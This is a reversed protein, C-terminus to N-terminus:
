NFNLLRRVDMLLVGLRNQGPFSSFLSPPNSKNLGSGWFPNKTWEVLFCDGTAMLKAALDRNEFKSLLIERMIKIKVREWQESTSVKKGEHLADMPALTLYRDPNASSNHFMEKAFQYANESSPFTLGRYVVPCLHFNSLFRYRVEMNAAFEIREVRKVSEQGCLYPRSVDRYIQDVDIKALFCRGTETKRLCTIYSDFYSRGWFAACRISTRVTSLYDEDAAGRYLWMPIEEILEKPLPAAFLQAPGGFPNPVFSRCLFTLKDLSYFRECETKDPATAKIGCIELIPPITEGNFWRCSQSVTCIFDDGYAHIVCNHRFHDRTPVVDNLLSLKIWAYYLLLWNAITNYITTMTCGSPNGQHYHYVDGDIVVFHNFSEVGSCIVHKRFEVPYCEAICESVAHLLQSSESADFGSYDFGFHSGGIKLHAHIMDSWETSEANIGYAHQMAVRGDKFQKVFDLFLMRDALVKEMPGATFIRTKAALVREIDRREDKLTGRFIAPKVLGSERGAIVSEVADVLEVHPVYKGDVNDFYSTKGPSGSPKLFSWPLGPSTDMAFKSTSGYHTEGDIADQMSVPKCEQIHALLDQKVWEVARNLFVTDFYGPTHFKKDVAKQMSEYNLKAPASTVPHGFCKPANEQLPSPRIDSPPISIVGPKSAHAYRGLAPLKNVINASLPECVDVPPFSEFGRCVVAPTLGEVISKTLPQFYASSNSIDGAVYIGAIRLQGSERVLLVSGCDGYVLEPINTKYL